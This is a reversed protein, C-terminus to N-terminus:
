FTHNKEGEKNFIFRNYERTNPEILLECSDAEIFLPSFSEREVVHVQKMKFRGSNEKKPKAFPGKRTM